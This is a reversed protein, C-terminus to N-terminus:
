IKPKIDVILTGNFSPVLFKTHLCITSMVVCQTLFIIEIVSHHRHLFESNHGVFIVSIFATRLYETVLEDCFHCLYYCQQYLHLVLLEHVLSSTGV